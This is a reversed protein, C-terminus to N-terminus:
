QQHNNLKYYFHIVQEENTPKTSRYFDLAYEDELNAQVFVEEFGQQECYENVFTILKKGIGKRQHEALVALDYIYALPKVSYYQHLVYVTLGGIIKDDCKATVAFFNDQHLLNQLYANDPLATEMEFVNRFVAILETLENLKNNNLIQIDIKM